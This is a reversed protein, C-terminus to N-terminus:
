PSNLFSERLFRHYGILKSGNKGVTGVIAVVPITIGVGSGSAGHGSQNARVESRSASYDPNPPESVPDVPVEARFWKLLIQIGRSDASVAIKLCFLHSQNSFEFEETIKSLGLSASRWPFLLFSAWHNLQLLNKLSFKQFKEVDEQLQFPSLLFTGTDGRSQCIAM